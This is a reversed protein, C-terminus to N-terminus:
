LWIGSWCHGWRGSVRCGEQGPEDGAAQPEQEGCARLERQAWDLSEQEVSCRAGVKLSATFAPPRRVKVRGVSERLLVMPEETVDLAMRWGLDRRQAGFRIVQETSYASHWVACGSSTDLVRPGLSRETETTGALLSVDKEGLGWCDNVLM